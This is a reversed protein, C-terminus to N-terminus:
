VYPCNEHAISDHLVRDQTFIAKHASGAGYSIGKLDALQAWTMQKGEFNITTRAGGGGGGAKRAPKQALISVSLEGAEDPTITMSKGTPLTIGETDLIGKVSDAIQEQVNVLKAAFEEAQLEALEETEVAQTLEAIKAQEKDLRTKLQELKTAM